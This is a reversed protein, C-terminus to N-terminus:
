IFAAFFLIAIIGSIMDWHAAILGLAAGIVLISVLGVGAATLVEFM